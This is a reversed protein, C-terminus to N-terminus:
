KALKSWYSNQSANISVLMEKLKEKEQQLGKGHYINVLEDRKYETFIQPLPCLPKNSHAEKLLNLAETINARARESNEAMQDLGERYYKYQLKRFPAMSGDLYDNIIAFRNRDNEFPKWGKANLGQANNVISLATQLMDTGGEPAMTDMDLGIILYVYYAVLATLANDIQDPRFELKDFELFTFDCSADKFNFTTTMYTSNYVPRMSQVILSGGMTNAGPDYESITFSFSCRIRENPQYQLNTWKRDNIFETLTNKLNDFVSQSTVKVQQTNVSVTANLEQGFSKGAGISLFLCFIRILRVPQM